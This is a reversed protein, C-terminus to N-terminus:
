HSALKRFYTSKANMNRRSFYKPNYDAFSKSWAGEMLSGKGLSNTVEYRAPECSLIALKSNWSSGRCGNSCRLCGWTQAGISPDKHIGPRIPHCKLSFQPLIQTKTMYQASM